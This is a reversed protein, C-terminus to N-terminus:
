ALTILETHGHHDRFHSAAASSSDDARVAQGGQVSTPLAGGRARVVHACKAGASAAGVRHHSAKSLKLPRRSRGTRSMADLSEPTLM